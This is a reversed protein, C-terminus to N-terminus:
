DAKRRGSAVFTSLCAIPYSVIYMFKLVVLCVLSLVFSLMKNLYLAIYQSTLAHAMNIVSIVVAVDCLQYLYLISM